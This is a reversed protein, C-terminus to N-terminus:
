RIEVVEAEFEGLAALREDAFRRLGRYFARPDEGNRTAREEIIKGLKGLPDQSTKFLTEAFSVLLDLNM